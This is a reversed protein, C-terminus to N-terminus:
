HIKIQLDYLKLLFERLFIKFVGVFAALVTTFGPSLRCYKTCKVKNRHIPATLHKKRVSGSLMTM